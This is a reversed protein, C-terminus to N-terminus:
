GYTRKRHSLLAELQHCLTAVGDDQAIQAALVAARQRYRPTAILDELTAALGKVTLGQRRVQRGVGLKTLQAAAFYQDIGWPAVATPVGARLSQGTSGMGGHHIVAACRPYVLSFPAYPLVFVDPSARDMGLEPASGIVLARAGLQQIAAVSTRYFATFAHRVTPAMSGSSVAIVPTDTELFATLEAPMQWGPPVDAFCYGTMQIYPPWDPPPPLFAPSVAVATLQHSLGGTLIVDRQASLGYAQRLPNIRTDVIQRLLLAGVRWSMRTAMPQIKQPIPMGHASPEIWASPITSPTLTVSAWPIGTREAVIAANFQLAAAVLLDADQTARFVTAVRSTLRPLIDQEIVVKLTQLASGGGFLAQEDPTPEAGEFCIVEFGHGHLLAHFSPPVVFRVSHGRERLGLGLALFPYLDGLSGSTTIVIRAM